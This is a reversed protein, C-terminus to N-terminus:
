PQSPAPSRPTAVLSFNRTRMVADYAGPMEWGINLGSVYLDNYATTKLFGNHQALKFAYEIWPAANVRVEVWRTDPGAQIRGNKFFGKGDVVFAKSPMSFIFKGSADAKGGDRSYHEDPAPSRNDFVPIGFWLMDGYGISDRSLNQVYLFLQFQAAHLQPNADPQRDAFADLRCSLAVDLRKLHALRCSDSPFRVNTLDAQALLHPWNEGAQRPHDYCASAFLGLVVEGKRCDVEVRKTPNAIEFRDTDLQRQRTVSTDALSIKSAWQGLTWVPAGVQDATRFIGKIEGDDDPQGLGRISLWKSFTPDPLLSYPATPDYSHTACGALLLCSCLIVRANM